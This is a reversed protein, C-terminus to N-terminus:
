KAPADARTVVKAPNGFAMGFDPVDKHLVTNPGVVANRGVTVGPLIVAGTGIWCGKKLLVPGKVQDGQHMIPVEPDKYFHDTDAIYVRDAIMVDSELRVDHFANIHLFRGLYCRDGIVLTPKGDERPVCNFWALERIEVGEGVEIMDPRSLACTPEVTSGAGFRRFRGRVATTWVRVKVRRVIGAAYELLKQPIM